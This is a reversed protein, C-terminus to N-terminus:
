HTQQLTRDPAAAKIDALLRVLRNDGGQRRPRCPSEAEVIGEYALRKM